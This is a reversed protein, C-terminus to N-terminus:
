IWTWLQFIYDLDADLGKTARFNDRLNFSPHSYNFDVEISISHETEDSILSSQCVCLIMNRYKHGLFFGPLSSRFHSLSKFLSDFQTELMKWGEENGILLIRAIFYIIHRDIFVSSTILSFSWLHFSRSLYTMMHSITMSFDHLHRHILPLILLLLILSPSFFPDNLPLSLWFFLSARLRLLWQCMAHPKLLLHRPNLLEETGKMDMMGGNRGREWKKQHWEYDDHTLFLLWSPSGHDHNRFSLSVFLVKEEQHTLQVLFSAAELSVLTGRWSCVYSFFVFCLFDESSLTVLSFRLTRISIVPPPPSSVSFSIFELDWLRRVKSECAIM